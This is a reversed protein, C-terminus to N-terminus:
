MHLIYNKTEKTEKTYFHPTSIRRLRSILLFPLISCFCVFNVFGAASTCIRANEM